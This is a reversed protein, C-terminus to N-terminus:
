QTIYWHSNEFDQEGVWKIRCYLVTPLQPWKNTKWLLQSSHAIIVTQTNNKNNTHTHGAYGLSNHVSISWLQVILQSQAPVSCNFPETFSGFINIYKKKGGM